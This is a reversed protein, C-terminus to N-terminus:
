KLHSLRRFETPKKTEQAIVAKQVTDGETASAV